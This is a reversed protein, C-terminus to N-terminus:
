AFTEAKETRMRHAHMQTEAEEDKIVVVSSVSAAAAPAPFVVDADCGCCSVAAGAGAPPGCSSLVSSRSPPAGFAAGALSSVEVCVCVNVGFSSLWACRVAKTARCGRDENALRVCLLARVTEM